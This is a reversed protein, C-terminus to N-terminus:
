EDHMATPTAAAGGPAAPAGLPLAVTLLAITGQPRNEVKVERLVKLRTSVPVGAVNLTYAITGGIATVRGRYSGLHNGAGSDRTVQQYHAALFGISLDKTLYQSVALDAHIANGSTYQTAYNRGNMEYGASGSVELGIKPDLWTAAVYVDGILRNFSLNSLADDRYAGSPISASAGIQWHFNGKHWGIFSTLVPDGVLFDSDRMKEGLVRGFRPAAVLAGASVRPDGLPLTAAFGLNGGLIEAPTVWTATLFGARAQVKVNALVAGGLQTTKGASLRGSYSYGDAEFYFGPPPTIGSTTSKFSPIYLSAGSETAHAMLPALGICTCALASALFRDRAKVLKGGRIDGQQQM